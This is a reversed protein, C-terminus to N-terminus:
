SYEPVHRDVEEEEEEEAANRMWGEISCGGGIGDMKWGEKM